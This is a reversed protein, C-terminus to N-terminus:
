TGKFSRPEELNLICSGQLAPNLVGCSPSKPNQVNMEAYPETPDMVTLMAPCLLHRIPGANSASM